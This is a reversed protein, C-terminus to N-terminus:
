KETCAIRSKPKSPSGKCSRAKTDLYRDCHNRVVRPLHSRSEIRAGQRAWESAWQVGQATLSDPAKTNLMRPPGLTLPTTGVYYTQVKNNPACLDRMLLQENIFFPTLGQHSNPCRKPGSKERLTVFSDSSHAVKQVLRHLNQASEPFSGRCEPKPDRGGALPCAQRGALGAHPRPPTM